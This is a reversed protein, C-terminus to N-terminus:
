PLICLVHLILVEPNFLSKWGKKFILLLLFLIGINVATIKCLLTLATFIIALWYYKKSGSDLWRIFTYGSCVYFFFMVSEPQLTNSIILLIPSLAFFFSAAIAAKKNLLYRSLQFFVLM